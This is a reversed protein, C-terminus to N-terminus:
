RSSAAGASGGTSGTSRSLRRIFVGIALLLVVLGVLAIVDTGTLSSATSSNAVTHPRVPPPAKGSSGGISRPSPGAGANASSGPQGNHPSGSGSAQIRAGGSRSGSSSSSSAERQRASAGAHAGHHRHRHHPKGLVAAEGAYADLSSVDAAAPGAMALCLAVCTVALAAV